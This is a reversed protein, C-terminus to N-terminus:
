KKDVSQIVELRRQETNIEHEKKSGDAEVTFEAVATVEYIGPENIKYTYQETIATSGSFTRHVAMEPLVITNILRGEHDQILYYFIDKRSEMAFAEDVNNILQATIIFPENVPIQQPLTITVTFPLNEQPQEIKEHSQSEASFTCGALFFIATVLILLKYRM